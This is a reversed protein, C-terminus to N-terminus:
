QVSCFGEPEPAAFEAAQAEDVTFVDNDGLGNQSDVVFLSYRVGGHLRTVGHLVARAHKTLTGAPRDPVLLGDAATYFCLRGGDYETDDNLSLQVTHSAYDGDCHFWICGHVPGETRRLVIKSQDVNPHYSRFLVVKDDPFKFGAALAAAIPGSPGERPGVVLKFDPSGPSLADRAADVFRMASQRQAATLITDGTAVIEPSLALNAGLRAAAATFAARPPQRAAARDADNLLLYKNLVDARDTTTFSSIMGRLRLVLHLTSEKQIKYASLTRGDELQMGAFIVRQQDPPIGEKDQIKAKVSEISENPTVELTITKGTLTKVFIQMTVFNPLRCNSQAQDIKPSSTLPLLSSAGLVVQPCWCTVVTPHVRLIVRPGATEQNGRTLHPFGTNHINM